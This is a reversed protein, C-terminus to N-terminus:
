AWPMVLAVFDPQSPARWVLARDSGHMDCTLEQGVAADAIRRLVPRSLTITMPTGIGAGSLSRGASTLRAASEEVSLLVADRQQASTLRRVEDLPFLAKTPSFAATQLIRDVSPFLDARTPLSLEQGREDCFRSVASAADGDRGAPVDIVLDVSRRRRLWELVPAPALRVRAPPGDIVSPIDTRAMLVYRDTAAVAVSAPGVEILVGDHNGDGDADASASAVQRIASALAAADFHATTRRAPNRDVDARLVLTLDDVLATIVESRKRADVRWENLIREAGSLDSEFVAGIRELSLGADRLRRIWIARQQQDLSYYRYGTREEVDAPALLGTEGYQRLASASLGVSRAFASITQLPPQEVERRDSEQSQRM